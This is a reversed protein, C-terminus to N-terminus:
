KKHYLTMPTVSLDPSQVSQRRGNATWLRTRQASQSKRKVICSSPRRYPQKEEKSSLFSQIESRIKLRKVKSKQHNKETEKDFFDVYACNCSQQNCKECTAKSQEQLLLVAVTNYKIGSIRIPSKKRIAKSNRSPSDLRPKRLSVAFNNYKEILKIKDELEPNLPTAPYQSPKYDNFSHSTKCRYDISDWTEYSENRRKFLMPKHKSVRAYAEYLTQSPSGVSVKRSYSPEEQTILVKQEVSSNVQFPNPNEINKKFISFHKLAYEINQTLWSYQSDDLKTEKVEM